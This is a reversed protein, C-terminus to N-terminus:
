SDWWVWALKLWWLFPLCIIYKQFAWSNYLEFKIIIKIFFPSFNGRGGRFFRFFFIFIKMNLGFGIVFGQTLNFYQISLPSYKKGRVQGEFSPCSPCVYFAVWNSHCIKCPIINILVSYIVFVKNYWSM